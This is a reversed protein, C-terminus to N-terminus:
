AATKKLRELVEEVQGAEATMTEESFRIKPIPRMRLRHNLKQQIFYIKNNLFELVKEKKGEPFVSVWIGCDILDSSVEVRTVTVLLDLSFDFERLLIQSIERKILSNLRQIRKPDSM